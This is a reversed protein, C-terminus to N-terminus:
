GETCWGSEERSVGGAECGRGRGAGREGAAGAGGAAGGSRNGGRGEGAQPAGLVTRVSIWQELAQRDDQYRLRNRADMARVVAGADKTLAM